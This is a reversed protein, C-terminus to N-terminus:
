LKIFIDVCTNIYKTASKYPMKQMRVGARLALLRMSTPEDHSIAVKTYSSKWCWPMKEPYKHEKQINKRAPV